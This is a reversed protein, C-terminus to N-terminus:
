DLHQYQHADCHVHDDGNAPHKCAPHACRNYRVTRHLKPTTCRPCCFSEIWSSQEEDHVNVCWGHYWRDCHDCAIMFIQNGDHTRAAPKHGPVIVDRNSDKGCVCDTGDSRNKRKQPQQQKRHKNHRQKRRKGYETDSTDDDLHDLEDTSATAELDSEPPQNEDTSSRSRAPHSQRAAPPRKLDPARLKKSASSAASLPGVSFTPSLLAPDDEDDTTLRRGGLGSHEDIDSLSPMIPKAPHSVLAASSSSAMQLRRMINVKGPQDDAVHPTPTKTLMSYSGKALPSGFEVTSRRRPTTSLHAAPSYLSNGYHQLSPHLHAVGSSGNSSRLPSAGPGGLSWNLSQGQTGIHSNTASPGLPNPQPAGGRLPTLSPMRLSRAVVPSAYATNVAPSDVRFNGAADLMGVPPMMGPRRSNHPTVLGRRAVSQAM